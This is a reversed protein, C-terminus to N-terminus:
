KKVKYPNWGDLVYSPTSYLKVLESDASLQRMVEHRASVDIKRGEADVSNYELFRMNTQDGEIQYVAEPRINSLTCDILVMEAFLYGPTGNKPLRALYAQGMPSTTSFACRVFVNGHHGETNRIWMFPGGTATLTCDEFFVSGRGLINDGDGHILSRSFYILGNAQLADGSGRVTVNDVLIREGNILLGEAQGFMTTRITMDRLQVDTCNDVMFAARRSPFTGPWENTSVNVPHPNFVECNAYHVDVGDRSEGQLILGRKNRFYVIEEYDGNRIFIRYGCVGEPVHDLAGQVTSFDGAGSADVVLRKGKPAKAKTSFSWTVPQPTGFVEADITVRYTKGYELLNNHLSIVATHGKVIIPRFHFGDSFGGIITLQYETNSTPQAEGSPTGPVTNANTARPGKLTYDYPTSTYPAKPGSVSAVPGDPISMDIVDAQRGSVVETVVIRGTRNVTPAADFTLTLHTDVNVSLAGDAPLLQQPMEAALGVSVAFAAAALCLFRKMHKLNESAPM